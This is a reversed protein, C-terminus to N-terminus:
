SRLNKYIIRKISIPMLFATVRLIMFLFIKLIELGKAFKLMYIRLKIEKFIYKLGGRRKLMKNGVRVLVTIDPFNRFKYGKSILKVWLAYDEFGDIYPYFSKDKHDFTISRKFFVTVHNMPNMYFLRSRIGEFDLPVERTMLLDKKEEVFENIFTGLVDYQEGYKTIKKQIFEFRNNICLDDSDFRVLWESSAKQIAINLAKSLGINEKLCIEIFNFHKKANKISQIKPLSISGNRVLVIETIFDKNPILSNLAEDFHSDNDGQYVTM